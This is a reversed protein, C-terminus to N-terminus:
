IFHYTLKFSDIIVKFFNHSMVIYISPQPIVITERLEKFAFFNLSLNIEFLNFVFYKVILYKGPNLKEEYFSVFV